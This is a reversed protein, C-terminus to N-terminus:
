RTKRIVDRFDAINKIQHYNYLNQLEEVANKQTISKPLTYGYKEMKDIMRQTDLLDAKLLSILGRKYSVLTKIKEEKLLDIMISLSPLVARAKYFQPDTIYIYGKELTDKSYRKHSALQVIDTPTLNPFEKVLNELRKYNYNGENAYAHIFDGNKWKKSMSNQKAIEYTTKRKVVMFHVPTNTKKAAMYRHQGEQIEFKGDVESIEIPSGVWGNEKMNEAIIDVHNQYIERNDNRLTFDDYATTIYIQNEKM